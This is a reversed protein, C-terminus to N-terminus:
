LDFITDLGIFNEQEKTSIKLTGPHGSKKLFIIFHQWNYKLTSDQDNSVLFM